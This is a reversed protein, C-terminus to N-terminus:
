AIQQEVMNIRQAEDMFAPGGQMFGCFLGQSLDQEMDRRAQAFMKEQM